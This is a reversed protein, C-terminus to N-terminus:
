VNKSRPLDCDTNFKVRVKDFLRFANRMREESDTDTLIRTMANIFETFNINGDGDLDWEVLKDLVEKDDAEEGL